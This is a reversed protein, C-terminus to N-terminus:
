SIVNDSFIYIFVAAEVLIERYVALTKQGVNSAKFRESTIQKARVSMVGALKSDALIRCIGEAISTNDFQNVLFGTKGDEIMYPLGCVNTGVVPVGIAMAEEISLSATEQFSPILFCNAKSLEIQIQNITLNRLFHM